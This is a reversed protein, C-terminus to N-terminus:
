LFIIWYNKIIDPLQNNAKLEKIAIILSDGHNILPNEDRLKSAKEQIINMIPERIKLLEAESNVTIIKTM